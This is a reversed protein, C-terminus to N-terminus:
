GGEEVKCVVMWRCNFVCSVMKDIGAYFAVTHYILMTYM